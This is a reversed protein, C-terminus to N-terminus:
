QSGGEQVPGEFFDPGFNDGKSTNRGTTRDTSADEDPSAVNSSKGAAAVIAKDEADNEIVDATRYCYQRYALALIFATMAMSIVIATLIMGQALPDAVQEGYQETERGAIPPSGPPGGAQLMLLNAGNGILLIGILMKTMARDLMLYVGAAFLVGTTLLLMLNAEM